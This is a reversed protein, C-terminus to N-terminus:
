GGNRGTPSTLSGIVLQPVGEFEGVEQGLAKRACWESYKCLDMKQHFTGLNKGEADFWLVMAEAAQRLEVLHKAAEETDCRAVHEGTEDLVSWWEAFGGNGDDDNGYQITWVM